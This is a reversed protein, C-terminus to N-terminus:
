GLDKRGEADHAHQRFYDSQETVTHYGYFAAAPYGGTINM